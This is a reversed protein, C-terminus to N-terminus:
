PTVPYDQFARVTKEIRSEQKLPCINKAKCFHCWDGEKYTKPETLVRDVGRKFMPVYSKLKKMSLDWFTPAGDGVRPQMIWLRVKPFDWNYKWALALGYTIMQLNEIPSVPSRGYKYDLVHLTDYHAALGVDVTGFMDPHIFPLGLKEEILLDANGQHQVILSTIFKSTNIAHLDMENISSVRAKYKVMGNLVSELVEHARTGEKSWPTDKDPLGESLAVSGCCNLWREAGSASFKSHKRTSHPLKM